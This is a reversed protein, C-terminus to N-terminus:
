MRNLIEQKKADFEEQSIAGIDLMEKLQKIKEVPNEKTEGADTASKQSFRGSPQQPIPQAPQQTSSFVQQAMSGFVGGAAMGMGLGAGAAAVGGAGENLSINEMMDLAKHTRYDVGYRRMRADDRKQQMIEKYGPDNEAPTIKDFVFYRLRIGYENLIKEELVAEVEKQFGELNGIIDIIDRGATDNKIVQKIINKVTQIIISRIYESYFEDKIVGDVNGAMRQLLLRPKDIMIKFSGTSIVNIDQGFKPDEIRLPSNEGWGWGIEKSDAKKVFYVVCNFTSIGGTFANRLRSIFPYNETSLQYKGNEFTEEISGDKIFIAEEGPMVILTANTNFDEEPARWILAEGSRDENKIVDAWHKKGGSYAAENPNKSFLGM